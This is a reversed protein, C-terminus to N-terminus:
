GAGLELPKPAFDQRPHLKPPPPPPSKGAPPFARFVADSGYSYRPFGIDPRASAPHCISAGLELPNPARFGALRHIKLYRLPSQELPKTGSGWCEQISDACVYAQVM